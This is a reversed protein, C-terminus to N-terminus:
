VRGYACTCLFILQNSCWKCLGWMYMRLCVWENVSACVRACAHTYRVPWFVGRLQLQQDLLAHHPHVCDAHLYIYTYTHTCTRTQIHMIQLHKCRFYRCTFWEAYWLTIVSERRSHNSVHHGPESQTSYIHAPSINVHDHLAYTTTHTVKHHPAIHMCNHPHRHKGTSKYAHVHVYIGTHKYSSICACMNEHTSAPNLAPASM